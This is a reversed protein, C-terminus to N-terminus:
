REVMGQGVLTRKMGDFMQRREALQAKLAAGHLWRGTFRKKGNPLHQMAPVLIPGAELEFMRCPHCPCPVPQQLRGNFRAKASLEDEYDHQPDFTM